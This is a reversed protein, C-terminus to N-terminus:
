DAIGDDFTTVTSSAAPCNGSGFAVNVPTRSSAGFPQFAESEELPMKKM